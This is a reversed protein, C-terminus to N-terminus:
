KTDQTNKLKSSIKFKAWAPFLNLFRLIFSLKKPFYISSHRQEIGHLFSQAAEEVSIKMPMEFDNKDTLPTEVFGPSASQVLIDKSALDVQMSKTFYHLAAKSAGYAQSKTFPLLRALSDVIVIQSPPQNEKLLAATCNVVGMFNVNFVRKFLNVEFNDIDVYECVGANLVAIDMTVNQLAESVQQQDSTDFKLTSINDHVAMKNLEVQNRGCAIVQYQNNACLLSLAKGIGSTAGTILITKM